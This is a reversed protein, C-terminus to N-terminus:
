HCWFGLKKEDVTPNKCVGKYTFTVNYLPRGIVRTARKDDDYCALGPVGEVKTRILGPYSVPVPINKGSLVSVTWNKYKENNNVSKTNAPCAIFFAAEAVSMFILTTGVLMIKKIM